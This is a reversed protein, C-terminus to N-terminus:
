HRGLETVFINSVVGYIDAKSMINFGPVTITMSYFYTLSGVLTVINKNTPRCVERYNNTSSHKWVISDRLVQGYLM